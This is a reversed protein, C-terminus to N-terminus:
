EVRNKSVNPNYTTKKFAPDFTALIADKNNFITANVEKMECMLLRDEGDCKADSM